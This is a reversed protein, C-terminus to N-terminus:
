TERYLRKAADRSLSARPLELLELTRTGGGHSLTIVAGAHVTRSPKVPQGDLRADGREIAEAAQTRSKYLRLSFLLVDFRLGEDSMAGVVM